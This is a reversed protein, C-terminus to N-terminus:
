YNLNQLESANLLSHLGTKKFINIRKFEFTSHVRKTTLGLILRSIGTKYIFVWMLSPELQYM